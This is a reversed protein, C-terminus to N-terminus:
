SHSLVQINLSMGSTGGITAALGADLLWFFARFRRTGRAPARPRGPPAQLPARFSSTIVFQVYIYKYIYAVGGGWFGGKQDTPSHVSDPFSLIRRPIVNIGPSAKSFLCSYYGHLNFQLSLSLSLTHTHTHVYPHFYDIRLVLLRNEMSSLEVSSLM